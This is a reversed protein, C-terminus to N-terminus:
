IPARGCSLPRGSPRTDAERCITLKGPQYVSGNPLRFPRDIEASSCRSGGALVSSQCFITLCALGCALLLLSHKM